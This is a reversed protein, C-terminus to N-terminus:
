KKINYFVLTFRTGEFPEVWHPYKSGNFTYFKHYINHKEIEGNREICLNGGTYDGLGIIYSVGVNSADTHKQIEFNKNIVVQNFDFEIYEKVFEEFIKQYEPYNSRLKTFYGGDPAKERYSKKDYKNTSYSFNTTGYVNSKVRTKGDKSYKMRNATTFLPLEDVYQYLLLCDTDFDGTFYEM